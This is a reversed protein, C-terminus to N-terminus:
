NAIITGPILGGRSAIAIKTPKYKRKIKKALKISDTHIDHYSLYLKKM